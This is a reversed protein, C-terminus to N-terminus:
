IVNEVETLMLVLLGGFELDNCNSTRLSIIVGYLASPTPFNFLSGLHSSLDDILIHEDEMYRRPGIDAFSGSRLRPFFQLDASEPALDPIKDAPKVDQFSTFSNFALIKWQSMYFVVVSGPLM